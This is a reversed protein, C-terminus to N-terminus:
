LCHAMLNGGWLQSAWLGAAAPDMPLHSLIGPNLAGLIQLDTRMGTVQHIAEHIFTVALEQNGMIAGRPYINVQTPTMAEAAAGPGYSPQLSKWDYADNLIRSAVDNATRSGMKGLLMNIFGKCKKNEVAKWRALGRVSSERAPSVGPDGGLLLSDDPLVPLGLESSGSSEDGNGLNFWELGNLGAWLSWAQGRNDTYTGNLLSCDGAPCNANAVGSGLLGDIGTLDVGDIFTGGGGGSGGQDTFGACPGSGRPAGLQPEPEGESDSNSPGGSKSDQSQTQNSDRNQAVGGPCTGFPDTLMVPMNRVYSYRNLSQPDSTSGAIADPSSFRGLGSVHYRAQAYDNGSESDREYTTFLLKDNSANYWSEGYPFTGMEAFKNGSSDTVLRNSLHDQHYYKAGGSDIKALLAGGAYIYERSPSGVAAGNDYEAIVKSGSFVYVTNPNSGGCSPECKQIRLGNGDYVYVGAGSGSTASVAHSEADYVLTNIGDNTMNGSAIQAVL